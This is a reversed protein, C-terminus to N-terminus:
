QNTQLKKTSSFGSGFLFRTLGNTKNLREVSNDTINYKLLGTGNSVYVMNGVKAVTNCSNYSLHERWEGIRVQSFLPSIFATLTLIILKKIMITYRIAKM